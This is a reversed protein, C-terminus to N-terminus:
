AQNRIAILASRIQTQLDEFSLGDVGPEHVRIIVDTSGSPWDNRQLRVAERLRRKIRNRTVAPGAHRSVVFAFRPQLLPGPCASEAWVVGFSDWRRRMSPDGQLIRRIVVPSKLRFQRTFRFPRGNGFPTVNLPVVM